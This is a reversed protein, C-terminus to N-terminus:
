SAGVNLFQNWRRSRALGQVKGDEDMLGVGAYKKLNSSGWKFTDDVHESTRCCSQKNEYYQKEPINPLCNKFIQIKISAIQM